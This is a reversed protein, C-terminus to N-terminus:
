VERTRTRRGGTSERYRKWCTPCRWESVMTGSDDAHRVLRWGYKISVLTSDDDQAPVSAGCDTCVHANIPTGPVM